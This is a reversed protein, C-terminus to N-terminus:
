RRRFTVGQRSRFEDIMEIEHPVNYPTLRSLRDPETNFKAIPKFNLANAIILTPDINPASECGIEAYDPKDPALAPRNRV